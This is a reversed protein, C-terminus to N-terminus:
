RPVGESPSTVKVGEQLIAVVQQMDLPKYLVAYAGEDQAEKVLEEVSFGTMMVVTSAPSIRKIERFADVGNMGPMKIDIFIIAFPTRNAFAIAQFGDEASVVEFGEDEIIASLTTRMGPDDDVVMLKPSRDSM